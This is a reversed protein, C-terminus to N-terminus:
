RNDRLKSEGLGRVYLGGEGWRVAGVKSSCCCRSKGSRGEKFAVGGWWNRAGGLQVKTTFRTGGNQGEIGALSVRGGKGERGRMESKRFKIKKSACNPNSNSVGGGKAL